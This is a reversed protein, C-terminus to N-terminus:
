VSILTMIVFLTMSFDTDDQAFRLVQLKGAAGCFVTGMRVRLLGFPILAIDGGASWCM